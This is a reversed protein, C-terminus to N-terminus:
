LQNRLAPPSWKGITRIVLVAGVALAALPTLTGIWWTAGEPEPLIRPGDRSKYLEIIQRETKGNAVMQRIEAKMATAADSMHHELTQRYCCPALLERQLKAELPRALTLEAHLSIASLLSALLTLKSMSM